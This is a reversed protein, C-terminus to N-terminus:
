VGLQRPAPVGRPLSSVARGIINEAGVSGGWGKAATAHDVGERVQIASVVTEPLLNYDALHIVNQGLTERWRSHVRHLHGSAYDGQEIVIHFVDYLRRAERLSDAALTTPQAEQLGNDGLVRTLEGRTLHEPPEEDGVTFLYGRKGRKLMADHSTRRGAFYWALDYSEHCNGGGGGELWIKTLQDVIRNDAEFQSVQLPSRDCAADGIGMFMLHPYKVPKRDIIGQFLQGLGGKAIRDAIIGMSGTVDLAVIIPTAEPSDASDRSERSLVGKPDLSPDLGRSTFVQDVPKSAVSKSYSRYSNVDFSGSGM